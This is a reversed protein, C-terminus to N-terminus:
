SRVTSCCRTRTAVSPRRGGSDQPLIPELRIQPFNTGRTLQDWGYILYDKEEDADPNDNWGFCSVKGL